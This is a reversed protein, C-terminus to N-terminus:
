LAKLFLNVLLGLQGLKFSLFNCLKSLIDLGQSPLIAEDVLFEAFTGM